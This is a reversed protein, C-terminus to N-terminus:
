PTINLMKLMEAKTYKKTPDDPFSFTADDPASKIADIDEPSIAANPWHMKSRFQYESIGGKAAGETIARRGTPGKLWDSKLIPTGGLQASAKVAPDDRFAQEVYAAATGLGSLAKDETTKGPPPFTAQHEKLKTGSEYYKEQAPPLQRPILIRGAEQANAEYLGAMTELSAKRPDGEPLAAAQARLEKGKQENAARTMALERQRAYMDLAMQQYPANAQRQLELQQLRGGMFGQVAGGLPALPQQTSGPTSLAGGIAGILPLWRDISSFQPANPFFQGQGIQTPTGSLGAQLLSEGSSRNSLVDAVNPVRYDPMQPLQPQQMKPAIFNGFAEVWDM